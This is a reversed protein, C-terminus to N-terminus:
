YYNSQSNLNRSTRVTYNYIVVCVMWGLNKKYNNWHESRSNSSRKRIECLAIAKRPLINNVSKTESGRGVNISWTKIGRSRQNLAKNDNEKRDVFRQITNKLLPLIERVLIFCNTSIHHHGYKNLSVESKCWMSQERIWSAWVPWTILASIRLINISPKTTSKTCELTVIISLM